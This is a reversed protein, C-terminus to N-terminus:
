NLTGLATYDERNVYDVSTCLGKLCVGKWFLLMKDDSRVHIFQIRKTQSTWAELMYKLVDKILATEKFGSEVIRLSKVPDVGVGHQLFEVSDRASDTASPEVGGTNLVRTIEAIDRFAADEDPVRDSGKIMYRLLKAEPVEYRRAVLQVDEEFEAEGYGNCQVAYVLTKDFDAAFPVAELRIIKDRIRPALKNRMARLREPAPLNDNSSLLQSFQSWLEPIGDMQKAAM